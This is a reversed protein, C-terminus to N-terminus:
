DPRFHSRCCPAVIVVPLSGLSRRSLLSLSQRRLPQGLALVKDVEQALAGGVAREDSGRGGSRLRCERRHPVVRVIRSIVVKSNPSTTRTGNGKVSWVVLLCVGATM